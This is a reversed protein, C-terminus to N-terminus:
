VAMSAETRLECWAGYSRAARMVGSVQEMKTRACFEVRCMDFTQKAHKLTADWELELEMLNLYLVLEIVACAHVTICTVGLTCCPGWADLM